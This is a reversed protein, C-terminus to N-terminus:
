KFASKPVVEFGADGPKKWQLILAIKYRPGQFYDLTLAHDGKKMNVTGEKAVTQHPGDNNIIMKNDIFLKSGDDSILRFTYDGDSPAVITTRTNLAFWEFLSPVDPFGATFEREPVNYQDMCVTTVYKQKPWDSPLTGTNAPLEFVDAVIPFIMNAKTCRAFVVDEPIITLPVSGTVSPDSVLTASIIVPYKETGVRPSTYVGNQDITGPDKGTPGMVIWKVPPNKTGDKLTAVATIKNEGVKIEPSPVTVILEAKTMDNPVIVLSTSGKINENAVLTATIIVAFQDNGTIPSTYVGTNPDISGVEKGTPGMVSWKVPPNKTGDKLTAVATTTNGGVKLQPVPVTVIIGIGGNDVPVIKLPVSSTVSPDDKRTATIVVTHPDGTKPSTYTGDADITGPDQGPDATVTWFVSPITGDKSKATAKTTKNGFPLEAVPVSVILDPNSNGLDGSGGGTALKNLSGDVSEFSAKKCAGALTALILFTSLWAKM